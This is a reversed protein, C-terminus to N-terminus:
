TYNPAIFSTIQARGYILTQIPSVASLKKTRLESVDFGAAAVTSSTVRNLHCGCTMFQWLPSIFDQVPGFRGNSRVHELLILIGAPKLARKVRQLAEAPNKITCLVLTLVVVDISGAVLTNLFRDDTILVDIRASASQLKKKARQAMSRDPELALVHANRDYYPFNAGTGAGVDVIKGQLDALLASRLPGIVRREASRTLFDYLLGPM